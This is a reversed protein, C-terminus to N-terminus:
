AHKIRPAIASIFDSVGCPNFSLLMSSLTRVVVLIWSSGKKQETEPVELSMCTKM